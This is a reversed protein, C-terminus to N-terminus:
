ACVVNDYSEPTLLKYENTLIILFHVHPLCHKQFEITNMFAEVMGFLNRKLIDKKFEEIKARFVRSILDPRIQAEYNLSLHDKIEPWSPNCTIRIFLGPKGFSQVLVIADMYRRRMNPGGIFSVPISTRKGINSANREGLM